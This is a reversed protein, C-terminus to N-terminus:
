LKLHELHAIYVTAFKIGDATTIRNAYILTTATSVMINCLQKIINYKYISVMLIVLLTCELEYEYLVM